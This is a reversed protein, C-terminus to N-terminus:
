FVFENPKINEGFIFEVPRPKLGPKNLADFLFEFSMSGSKAQRFQALLKEAFPSHKSITGNHLKVFDDVEIIGSSLVRRYPNKQPQENKQPDVTQKSQLMSNMSTGGFCVDTILVVKNLQEMNRFLVTYDLYYKLEKASPNNPDKLPKSDKCVIYGAKDATDYLGHGAIYVVHQDYPNNSSRSLETIADLLDDQPANIKITVQYGNKKLLAAFVEGDNIANRLDPWQQRADYGNTAIVLAKKVANKQLTEDALKTEDEKKGGSNIVVNGRKGNSQIPKIATLIQLYQQERLIKVQAFGEQQVQFWREMFKKYKSKRVMTQQQDDFLTFVHFSDPMNSILKFLDGKLEGDVDRSESSSTEPCVIIREKQTFVAQAPNDSFFNKYFDTQILDGFGTDFVLLQRRAAVRDTMTKLDSLTFAGTKNYGNNGDQLDYYGEFENSEPNLTNGWSASAYYFLLVDDPTSRQQIQFFAENINSKGATGNTFEWSIVSDINNPLRKKLAQMYQGIGKADKVCTPCPFQVAYETGPQINFENKNLKASVGISIVFVKNLRSRKNPSVGYDAAAANFSPILAVIMLFAIVHLHRM